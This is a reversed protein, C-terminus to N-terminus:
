IFSVCMPLPVFFNRSAASSNPNWGIFIGFNMSSFCHMFHPFHENPHGCSAFHLPFSKMSLAISFPAFSIVSASTLFIIIFFLLSSPTSYVFFLLLSVIFDSFIMSEAPAISVLMINCFEPIFDPFLSNKSGNTVTPPISLSIFKLVSTCIFASAIPFSYMSDGWKEDNM